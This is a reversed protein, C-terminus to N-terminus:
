RRSCARRTGTSTGRSRTCSARPSTRPTSSSTGARRRAAAPQLAGDGHPHRRGQPPVRGPRLRDRGPVLVPRARHRAPPPRAERGRRHARPLRAARGQDAVRHRLRAAAAPEERSGRWYAAASRTLQFATAWAAPHEPVHPGRCLDQWVVQESERGAGDVNQYISLGGLGVEVRRATEAARRTARSASSSSSTRSTACSPAPRTRPSTGAASASARRSSGAWRRRSRRSTRRPSRPRRRRLRLLLRRHDAARHRAEGDPQDGPRGAGARAGGLAAPRGPRRARRHDRGRRRRRRGAPLHLDRLEGDVRVVVVDRRSSYLDTGTTGPEVTTAIGDVTLTILEPM